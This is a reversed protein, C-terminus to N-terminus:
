FKLILATEFTDQGSYTHATSVCGGAPCVFTVFPGSNPFPHRSSIDHRYELRATLNSFFPLSYSLTETIEGLNQAIGSRAGSSDGFWEGRTALQLADSPNYAEWLGVGSWWVSHRIPQSQPYLLPNTYAPSETLPSFQVPASQDAFLYEFGLQLPKYPTKWAVTTNALGRKSGSQTGTSPGYMGQLNWILSEFPTLSLQAEITQFLNKSAITDWGNNLGLTAGVYKNFSYTGRLGTVTFPEGLSYMLDISQNFNINNWSPIYEFGILSVQRGASLNIGNGIPITYTLYVQTPDMWGTPNHPGLQDGYYATLGHMVEATNLFNLDVVFGPQDPVSRSVYLEAQNPEFTSTGFYDFVRYLNNGTAPQNFNYNTGFDLMGHVSIGTEDLLRKQASSISDSLKTAATEVTSWAGATEAQVPSTMGARPGTPLSPVDAMAITAKPSEPRNAYRARNTRGVAVETTAIAATSLGSKTAPNAVRADNLAIEKSGARATPLHRRRSHAALVLTASRRPVIPRASVDLASSPEVPSVKTTPGRDVAAVARLLPNSLLGFVLAAASISWFALVLRWFLEQMAM